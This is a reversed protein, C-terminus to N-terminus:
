GMGSEAQLIMAEVEEPSGKFADKRTTRLPKAGGYEPLLVLELRVGDVLFNL